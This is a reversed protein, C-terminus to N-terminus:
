QGKLLTNFIKTSETSGRSAMTTEIAFMYAREIQAVAASTETRNLAQSVGTAPASAAPSGAGPSAPALGSLSSLSKAMQEIKDVLGAGIGDMSPPLSSQIDALGASAARAFDAGDQSSPSHPRDAVEIAPAAGSAQPSAPATAAQLTSLPVIM